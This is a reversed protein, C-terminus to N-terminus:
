AMYRRDIRVVTELQQQEEVSLWDEVWDNVGESTAPTKSWAKYAKLHELTIGYNTTETAMCRSPFHGNRHFQDDIWRVADNAKEHSIKM